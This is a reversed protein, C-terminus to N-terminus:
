LRLSREITVPPAGEARLERLGAPLAAVQAAARERIQTLTDRTATTRAGDVMVPRLLPRWGAPPAADFPQVADELIRGNAERRYVQKRSPLGPKGPSRKARPRGDYEVLKYVADLSPADQSVVVATGAAFADIPAGDAVLAAIRHEDLGGSAIIRVEGLGADDLMARARAAEGALDGSDLRIAGIRGPGLENAVAIAHRIGDATDYTDVLLTANPYREAFARFASEEDQSALVYSHAMTGVIPIGFRRGAEVSSTATFGAVYASRAATLAADIGHARRGGFELLPAGAAALVARAAKSAVLTAAGIQNLALTELLQAQPLPAIVQLLPEHPFVVAGEPPAWIEGTFRFSRLRELFAANFQPLSALYALDDESFRLSEIREITQELGAALLFGWGDPLSRTTLEFVAPATTGREYYLQAMVLEYLDTFLGSTPTM